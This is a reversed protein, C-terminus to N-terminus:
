RLGNINLWIPNFPLIQSAKRKGPKLGKFEGGGALDTSPNQAFHFLSVARESILCHYSSLQFEQCM